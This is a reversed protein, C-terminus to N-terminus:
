RKLSKLYVQGGAVSRIADFIQQPDDHKSVFGWAGRDIAREVRVLDDYGSHVIFRVEPTRQIADAMAELPDRGPMTLDMLVIEPKMEAVADLLTDASGINGVCAMDAEGDILLGLMSALDDSDDVVLVQIKRNSM